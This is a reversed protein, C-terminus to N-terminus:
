SRPRRPWGRLARAPRSSARRPLGRPLAPTSRSGALHSTAAQSTAPRFRVRVSHSVLMPSTAGYAAVHGPRGVSDQASGEVGVVALRWVTALDTKTQFGRGSAEVPRQGASERAVAGEGPRQRTPVGPGSQEVVSQEAARPPTPHPSSSAAAVSSMIPHSPDAMDGVRLVGDTDTRALKARCTRWHTARGSSDLGELMWGLLGLVFQYADDADHGFWMREHAPELDIEAFGAATLISRVRDPDALAFPNPSDPPPAPLERGAALAGTLAGVWENDPLSQWTLLALRGGSRLARAINSFGARLDGFFMAGTNSIAVDFTDPDFPHIQADAQVFSVNELSHTPQGNGRTRSCRRRCTSASCRVPRRQARRACRRKVPGAVSTSSATLEHIAAAALLRHHFPLASRDFYEAHTGGLVRGRRRGLRAAARRESPRRCIEVTSAM